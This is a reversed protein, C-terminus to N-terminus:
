DESYTGSMKFVTVLVPTGLARNSCACLTQFPRPTFHAAKSCMLSKLFKATELQLNKLWNGQKKFVSMSLGDEFDV